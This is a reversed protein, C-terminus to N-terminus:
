DYSHFFFFPTFLIDAAIFCFCRKVWWFGVMSSSTSAAGSIAMITERMAICNMSKTMTEQIPVSAWAAIPGALMM